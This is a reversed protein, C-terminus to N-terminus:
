IYNKYDIKYTLYSIIYNVCNTPLVNLNKSLNNQLIKKYKKNSNILRFLLIEKQSQSSQILDYLLYGDGNNYRKYINHLRYSDNMYIQKKKARLIRDHLWMKDLNEKCDVLISQMYLQCSSERRLKPKNLTLNSNYIFDRNYSGIQNIIINNIIRNNIIKTLLQINKNIFMYYSIM